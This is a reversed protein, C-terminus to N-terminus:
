EGLGMKALEQATAWLGPELDVIQQLIWRLREIERKLEDIRENTIENPM